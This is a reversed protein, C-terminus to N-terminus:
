RGKTQKPEWRRGRCGGSVRRRTGVFINVEAAQFLNKPRFHQPMGAPFEAEHFAHADIWDALIKEMSEDIESSDIEIAM